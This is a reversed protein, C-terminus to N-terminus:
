ENLKLDLFNNIKKINFSKQIDFWESKERVFIFKINFTRAALWDTKSDGFFLGKKLNLNYKKKLYNINEIKNKPTGLIEDFLIDKNKKKFIERLESQLSGSVIFIKTKNKKLIKIFKLVGKIFKALVLKQFVYKKFVKLSKTILKVDKLKLIKFFFYEFKIKRSIGGYKKHYIIFEDVKNKPYASLTKNFAETKIQNSDLIVGDCDFIVFDINKLNIKM